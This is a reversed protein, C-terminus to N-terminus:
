VNQANELNSWGGACDTTVNFVVSFNQFPPLFISYFIFISTLKDSYLVTGRQFDQKRGVTCYLEPVFSLSLGTRWTKMQKQLARLKLAPPTCHSASSLSFVGPTSPFLKQQPTGLWHSYNCVASFFVLFSGEAPRILLRHAESFLASTSKLGAPRGALWGARGKQLGWLEVGNDWGESIQRCTQAAGARSVFSLASSFAARLGLPQRSHWGGKKRGSLFRSKVVFLHPSTVGRPQLRGAPGEPGRPTNVARSRQLIIRRSVRLVSNTKSWCCM